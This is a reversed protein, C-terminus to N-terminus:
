NELEFFGIIDDMKQTDNKVFKWNKGNLQYSNVGGAGGM